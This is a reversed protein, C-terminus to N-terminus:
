KELMSSTSTVVEGYIIARGFDVVAEKSQSQYHRLNAYFAHHNFYPTLKSSPLEEHILLRKVIANYDVIGESSTAKEEAVEEDLAAKLDDMAYTKDYAREVRFTDIDDKLIEKREDKTM